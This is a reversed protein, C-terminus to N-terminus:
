VWSSRLSASRSRLRINWVESRVPPLAVEAGHVRQVQCGSEQHRNLIEHQRGPILSM